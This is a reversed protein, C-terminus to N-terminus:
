QTIVKGDSCYVRVGAKIYSDASIAEWQEITGDYDVAKLNDCSSFAFRLNTVSAPVVVTELAPCQFCIMKADRIGEAIVVDTVATNMYTQYLVVPITNVNTLTTGYDTKTKDVPVAWYCPNGNDDVSKHYLYEADAYMWDGAGISFEMGEIALTKGENTIQFPLMEDGEGIIVMGSDYTYTAAAAELSNPAFIDVTGDRRLVFASAEMTEENYPTSYPQDYYFGHENMDVAKVTFTGTPANNASVVQISYDGVELTKLYDVSLKVITSGEELDYNSPDVVEGNIVVENFEDLPEPSRFSLMAPATNYFEQGSGELPEDTAIDVCGDSCQVYTAQVGNAWGTRRSVVGADMWEAMTGGFVINTLNACGNFANARINLKSYKKVGYYDTYRVVPLYVSTLNTCNLFASAYITLDYSQECHRPFYVATLNTCQQFARAGISYIASPFWVQQLTDCESFAETSVEDMICDGVYGPLKLISPLGEMYGITYAISEEEDIDLELYQTADEYDTLEPWIFGGGEQWDANIATKGYTTDLEFTKLGTKNYVKKTFTDYENTLEYAHNWALEKISDVHGPLAFCLKSAEDLYAFASGNSLVETELEGIREASLPTADQLIGSNIGAM